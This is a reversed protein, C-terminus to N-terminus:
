ENSIIRSKLCEKPKILQELVYISFDTIARELEDDAGSKLVKIEAKIKDVSVYDDFLNFCHAAAKIDNRNLTLVFLNDIELGIAPLSNGDQFINVGYFTQTVSDDSWKHNIINKLESM